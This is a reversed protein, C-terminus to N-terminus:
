LIWFAEPPSMKNDQLDCVPWFQTFPTLTDAPESYRTLFLLNPKLCSRLTQGWWSPCIVEGRGGRWGAYIVTSAMFCRCKSATFTTFVLFWTRIAAAPKRASPSLTGPFAMLGRGAWWSELRNIAHRSSEPFTRGTTSTHANLPLNNFSKILRLFFSRGLCLFMIFDSIYSCFCKSLIRQIHCGHNLGKQLDIHSGCAPQLHRLFGTLGALQCDTTKEVPIWSHSNPLYHGTCRVSGGDPKGRWM